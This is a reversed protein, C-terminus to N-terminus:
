AEARRRRSRDATELFRLVAANYAEPAVMNAVHDCGPLIVMSAHPVSYAQAEAVIKLYPVEREGILILTPVAIRGLRTVADRGDGFSPSKVRALDAGSYEAVIDSLRSRVRPIACAVAFLPHDLWAERM